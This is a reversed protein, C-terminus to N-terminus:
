IRKIEDHNVLNKIMDILPVKTKPHVWKSFVDQLPYLVFNRKDVHPHPIILTESEVIDNNFVLIDIDIIRSSYGIKFSTVRGLETEIYKIKSLVEKASLETRVLIVSNFFVDHSNFGWPPTEYIYSKRTINGIENQVHRYALHINNLKNGLNSGLGLYLYNLKSM